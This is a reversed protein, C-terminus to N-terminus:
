HKRHKGRQTRAIIVRECGRLRDKADAHVLDRRGSGCNVRDRRGNVVNITDNGAGGSVVNSGSGASITDNGSGGSLTDNGSGGSIKDNGSGGSICDAGPGGALRDNGAGGSIKDGGATGRFLNRGRTGTFVNSCRKPNPKVTLTPLSDSVTTGIANVATQRVRLAHGIDASTLGFVGTTAGPIPVCGNGAKDCRLWELSVNTAGTALGGHAFVMQGNVASGTVAPAILFIPAVPQWAARFDGDGLGSTLTTPGSGDSNVLKIGVSCGPMDCEEFAIKTGDPSYAPELGSAAGPTTYIPPGAEPVRASTFTVVISLSGDPNHREFAIRPFRGNLSFSPSGDTAGSPPASLQTRVTGDTHMLWIQGLHTFAIQTGDPSVAPETDDTSGPLATATGGSAPIVELTGDRAFVISSGDPTFAPYDDVVGDDSSTLAHAGSGDANAVAIGCGNVGGNLCYEFAIRRGDASYAPDADGTSFNTLQAQGSGDPNMVWVHTTNCSSDECRSFAIKGNAGPFTAYAAAPALLLGTGLVVSLM